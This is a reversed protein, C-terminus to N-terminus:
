EMSNKLKYLEQKLEVLEQKLVIVDDNIGGGSLLCGILVCKNPNNKGCLIFKTDDNVNNDKDIRIAYYYTLHTSIFMRTKSIAYEDNIINKIEGCTIGDQVQEGFLYYGSNYLIYFIVNIKDESINTQNFNQYIKLIDKYVITNYYLSKLKLIDMENNFLYRFNGDLQERIIKQQKVYDNSEKKLCVRLEEELLSLKKKSEFIHQMSINLEEQYKIRRSIQDKFYLM